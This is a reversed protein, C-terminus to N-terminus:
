EAECKGRSLMVDRDIHHSQPHTKEHKSVNMPGACHVHIILYNEAWTYCRWSKRLDSDRKLHYVNLKMNRQKKKKNNPISCLYDAVKICIHQLPHSLIVYNLVELCTTAIECM